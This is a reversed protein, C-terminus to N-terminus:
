SKFNAFLSHFMGYCVSSPPTDESSSFQLPDSGSANHFTKGVFVTFM